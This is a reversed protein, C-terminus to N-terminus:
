SHFLTKNTIYYRKWYKKKKKTFVYHVDIFQEESFVDKRM